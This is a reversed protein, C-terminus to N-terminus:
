VQRETKLEQWGEGRWMCAFFAVCDVIAEEVKDVIAPVNAAM